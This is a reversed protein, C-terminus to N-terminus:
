IEKTVLLEEVPVMENELNHRSLLVCVSINYPDIEVGEEVCQEHLPSKGEQRGKAGNCFPFMHHKYKKQLNECTPFTSPERPRARGEEGRLLSVPYTLARYLSSCGRGRM